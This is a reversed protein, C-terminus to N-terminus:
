RVGACRSGRSNWGPTGVTRGSDAERRAGPREAEPAAYRYADAHSKGAGIRRACVRRHALHRFLRITTKQDHFSEPKGAGYDNARPRIYKPTMMSRPQNTPTSSARSTTWRM